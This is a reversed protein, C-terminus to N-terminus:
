AAKPGAGHGFWHHRAPLVRHGVAAVKPARFTTVVQQSAPTKQKDGFGVALSVLDEGFLGAMIPYVAVIALLARIGVSEPSMMLAAIAVGGLVLLAVRTSPKFCEGEFGGQWNALLGDLPDEGIMGTLLFYVALLPLLTLYGVPGTASMVIGIFVSGTIIRRVRSATNLESQKITIDM